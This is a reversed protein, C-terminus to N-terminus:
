GTMRAGAFRGVAAVAEDAEDLMPLFWHWVHIMQDWVELTTDV